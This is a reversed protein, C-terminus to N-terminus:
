KGRWAKVIVPWAIAALYIVFLWLTIILPTIWLITLIDALVM